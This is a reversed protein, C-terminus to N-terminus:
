ARSGFIAAGVRVMTAGELIAAELDSSMGMSLTDLQCGLANLQEYCAHLQAFPKRQLEVSDAPDPIAMLGRLRVNPLTKISKALATLEEPLVGSKSLSRDINVQICINLPPKESSRQANLREAIKFRDVSHVWDFHQAITKTKNSQIPGIFHWILDAPHFAEVKEIAEQVYSEAFDRQGVEYAAQIASLPQTKSVAILRVAERSRHAQLCAKWIEQDVTKLSKPINHITM